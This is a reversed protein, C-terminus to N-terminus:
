EKSKGTIEDYFSDVVDDLSEGARIRAKGAEVQSQSLDRRVFVVGDEPQTWYDEAEKKPRVKSAM